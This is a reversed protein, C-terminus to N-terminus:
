LEAVATAVATAQRPYAQALFGCCRYAADLHFTCPILLQKLHQRDAPELLSAAIQPLHKDRSSVILQSTSIVDDGLGAKAQATAIEVLTEEYNDTERATEIAWAYESAAAMAQAIERLGRAR